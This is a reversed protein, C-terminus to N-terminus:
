YHIQPDVQSAKDQYVTDEPRGTKPNFAVTRNTNNYLNYDMTVRGTKMDIFQWGTADREFFPDARNMPVTLKPLQSEVQSYSQPYPWPWATAMVAYFSINDIQNYQIQHVHGYVVTVDAFPKLLAQVEAADETWFNWGKYIKQLPSHSFLVIPTGKKIGSLDNKLWERQTQGVMFPSGNPNDLGAMELMRQEESPWREHTWEQYTLISNLVIFHVGKHDWSYHQPGFLESWYKGLDLYYDHEGMVCHYKYNLKSLLEAGHDLEPKNGLQALDGGFVVFDPKPQLLNTEAVARILGRDWNRVFKTGSIHQIHADSIYAFTFNKHTDAFSLEVLSIPMTSAATIVGMKKLFNRRSIDLKKM